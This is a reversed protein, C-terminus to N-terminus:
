PITKVSRIDAIPTGNLIGMALYEGLHNPLKMLDAAFSEPELAQFFLNAAQTVMPHHWGWTQSLVVQATTTACRKAKTLVVRRTVVVGYHDNRQDGQQWAFDPTPNTLSGVLRGWSEFLLGPPIVIQPARFDEDDAAACIRFNDAASASGVQTVAIMSAIVARILLNGM